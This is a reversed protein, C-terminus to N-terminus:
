NMHRFLKTTIATETFTGDLNLFNKSKRVINKLTVSNM